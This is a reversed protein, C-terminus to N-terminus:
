YERKLQRYLEEKHSEVDHIVNLFEVYGKFEGSVEISPDEQFEGRGILLVEATENVVIIGGQEAIGVAVVVEKNGFARTTGVVGALKEM